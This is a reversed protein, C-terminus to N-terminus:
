DLLGRDKMAQRYVVNDPALEHAKKLDTTAKEHEKLDRFIAARFFYAEAFGPDIEIAREYDEIARELLGGGYFSSGRHVYTRADDPKIRLAEDFDTISKDHQGMFKKSMARTWWALHNEPDLAIAQDLDPFAYRYRNNNYHGFGRQALAKAMDLDSLGGAEIVATCAKIKADSKAADVCADLAADAWAPAFAAQAFLLAGAAALYSHKM